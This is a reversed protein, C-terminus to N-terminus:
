NTIILEVKERAGTISYKLTVDYLTAWSYMECIEDCKDYSLVWKHETDKLKECLRVHDEHKFAHQYLVGGKEYYPPDLYILAPYETDDILDEFDLSTCKGQRVEVGAFMQNLVDIKKCIYDPSWRCDIKYDGEQKKGGLPGGSMTGLGSYSMQHIALKKFGLDIGDDESLLEAKYEEYKAVSPTFNKVQEKLNEHNSILSKSKNYSIGSM